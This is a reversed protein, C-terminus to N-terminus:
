SSAYASSTVNNIKRNINNNNRHQQNNATWANYVYIDYPARRPANHFLPTSPPTSPLKTTASASEATFASSTSAFSDESARHPLSSLPDYPTFASLPYTFGPTM